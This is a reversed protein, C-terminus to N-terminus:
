LRLGAELQETAREVDHLFRDPDGASGIWAAVVAGLLAGAFVRVEFDGPDRGSREAVLEAITAGMSVIEDVTRARIAPVTATLRATERLHETEAPTLSTVLDHAAHRLAVMADAEPPQARVADIWRQDMGDQLVVDEKSPFYRFFTSPSVEAAEAIQEVTTADYGQERFLRYAHERMAARTRAKKRHRLGQKAPPRTSAAPAADGTGRRDSDPAPSANM